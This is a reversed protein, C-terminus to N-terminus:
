RKQTSDQLKNEAEQKAKWKQERRERQIDDYKLFQTTTLVKRYEVDRKRLFDITCKKQLDKEPKSAYMSDFQKSVELNILYIKAAQASDLQVDNTMENTYRLAKEEPTKRKYTQASVLMACFMLVQILSIKKM